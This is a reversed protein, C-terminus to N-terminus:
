TGGRSAREDGQEGASAEPLREDRSLLTRCGCSSQCAVPLDSFTFGSYINGLQKKRQHCEIVKGDPLVVASRSGASCPRVGGKCLSLDLDYKQREEESYGEPYMIGRYFGIFPMCRVRFGRRRLGDVMAWQRLRLGPYVVVRIECNVSAACMLDFNRLFREIKGDTMSMPHFSAICIEPWTDRFVKSVDTATLGSFLCTPGFDRLLRMGAALCPHLLPEGGTVASFFRLGTKKLVTRVASLGAPSFDLKLFRGAFPFLTRMPRRQPCYVCDNVCAATVSWSLVADIENRHDYYRWDTPDDETKVADREQAKM